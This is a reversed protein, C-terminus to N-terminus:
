TGASIPQYVEPKVSWAMQFLVYQMTRLSPLFLQKIHKYRNTHKASAQMKMVQMKLSSLLLPLGNIFLIVDPRKNQNNEIITNQNFILFQNNNTNEFDVFAVEYSREYGNQQYPIKVKEVLLKHFEENNHLLVPSYIRLVKQVAAEQADQPINPNIKAIANRLRDQLIIQQYNERECFLGEPSIEKGNVYDWGQSQLIEITSEEIINETIPKV